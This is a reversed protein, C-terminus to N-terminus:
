SPEHSQRALYLGRYEVSKDVEDFSSWEDVISYAGKLPALLSNREFLWSPYSGGGLAPPVHQVVLRGPGSRVFPNRDIIVHAFGVEVIEHLLPLPEELYPLVCSLLIVNPGGDAIAEAISEHFSLVEDRFERRGLAVYHPQEVVRWRVGPLDALDDRHHWWTSGLAGGFDVVNLRGGLEAAAAHLAAVLRSHPQRERFAVGDREFTARGARVENSARRVRGLIAGADYGQSAARAEAWSAYNGTFWRWGFTLRLWRRVSAPVLPKLMARITSM